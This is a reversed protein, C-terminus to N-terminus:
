NKQPVKLYPPTQCVRKTTFVLHITMTQLISLQMKRLPMLDNSRYVNRRFNKRYIDATEVYQYAKIRNAVLQDLLPYEAYVRKDYKLAIDSVGRIWISNWIDAYCANQEKLFM